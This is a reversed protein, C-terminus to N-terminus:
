DALGGFSNPGHELSCASYLLSTSTEAFLGSIGTPHEPPIQAPVTKRM